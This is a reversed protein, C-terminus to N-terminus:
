SLVGGLVRLTMSVAVATANWVGVDFTRVQATGTLTSGSYPTTLSVNYSAHPKWLNTRLYALNTAIGTVPVSASGSYLVDGVVVLELDYDTADFVWDEAIEGALGDVTANEGRSRGGALLAHLNRVRIWPAMLNVSNVALQGHAATHAFAM